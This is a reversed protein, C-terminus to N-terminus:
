SSVLRNPDAPLKAAQLERVVTLQWAGAPDMKVWVVGDFDSPIEVDGTYLACVHARTLKAIFYGLELIVNQRARPKLPGPPTGARGGVDDPTLLVLAFDVDAHEKIKEIITRGKSPLEYSRLFHHRSNSMPPSSIKIASDRCQRCVLFKERLDGGELLLQRSQPFLIM